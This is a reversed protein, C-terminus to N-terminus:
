RPIGLLRLCFRAVGDGTFGWDGALLELGVAAEHNDAGTAKTLACDTIMGNDTRRGPPGQLGGLTPLSEHGDRAVPDVASIVRDPAVRQAIRLLGDTGDSGVVMEVDQGAVLARLAAAEAAPGLERGHM